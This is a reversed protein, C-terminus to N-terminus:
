TAAECTCHEPDVGSCSQSAVNHTYNVQLRTRNTVVMQANAQQAAAAANVNQRFKGM